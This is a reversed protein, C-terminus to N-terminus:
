EATQDVFCYVAVVLRSADCYTAIEVLRVSAILRPICLATIQM